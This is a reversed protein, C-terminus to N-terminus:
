KTPDPSSTNCFYINSVFHRKSPNVISPVHSYSCRLFQSSYYKLKYQIHDAKTRQIMSEVATQLSQFTAICAKMKLPVEPKKEDM